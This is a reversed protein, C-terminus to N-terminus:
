SVESIYINLVAMFEIVQGDILFFFEFQLWLRKVDNNFNTVFSLDPLSM